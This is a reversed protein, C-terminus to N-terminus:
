RPRGEPFSRYGGEPAGKWNIIYCPQAPIPEIKGRLGKIQTFLAENSVGERSDAEPWAAEIIDSYTHRKYPHKVLYRLVSEELPTLGELPAEGQFVLNMQQNFWLRGRSNDQQDLVYAAFLSSFIHWGEENEIIVRKMKLRDLLTVQKKELEKQAKILPNASRKNDSQQVKQQIFQWDSLLQQEEQTLGNWLEKLRFQITPDNLLTDFWLSQELHQYRIWWRCATQLLAALNGTYIMLYTMEDDPIAVKELSIEQQILQRADEGSMPGVWCLRTDLIHYLNGLLTPDPLYVLERSLGAIYTFNAKFSDRLGRLTDTIRTPANELFTDLRDLVLVVRQQQECCHLLLERVASQALFPDRTARNDLYLQTILNCTLADMWSRREYFSRLIVRYFTALDDAPVNNLDVPVLIVSEIKDDIYRAVADPRNALFGLLNSKGAGALGIVSGCYGAQIWSGLRSMEQKRYQIHYANWSRNAAM